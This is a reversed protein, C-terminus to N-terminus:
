LAFMCLVSAVLFTVSALTLRAAGAGNEDLISAGVIEVGQGSLTERLTSNEDNLDRVIRDVSASVDGAPAALFNSV